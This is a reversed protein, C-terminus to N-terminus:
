FSANVGISFTRPIPLGNTQATAVDLGSWNTFTFLNNGSVYVRIRQGVGLKNLTQANLTYGLQVSQCRFYSADEVWRNSFRNNDAGPNGPRPIDTDTNSPTWYDLAEPWQNSGSRALFTQLEDNYYQVDGEGYFSAFFDFGKYGVSANIGYTYGPITKGLFVKDYENVVGDPGETYLQGEEEPNGRLDQFYYDGPYVLDASTNVDEVESQRQEVEQESQYMGGTKYGRLYFLSYGERVRGYNGGFPVGDKIKTVENHVVSLNTSVNYWIDGIEDRYGLQLDLGNNDVQGLNYPPDNLGASIPVDVTTLLDKTKKYFYEIRASLSNFLILDVGFNTTYTKEWSLSTNPMDNFGVGWYTNGMGLRRGGGVYGSGLSVTANENALGIYGYNRIEHNGLKGWGGFLKMDTLWNLGAMFPEDSIRWATSFGPFYDWRNEPAFKSSGDYRLTFDFYYKSAYNYDIRGVYGQVANEARYSEAGLYENNNTIGWYQEDDYHLGDYSASISHYGYKQHSGNLLLNVNHDGFSREYRVILEGMLNNNTSYSEGYSGESDDLGSSGFLDLPNKPAEDFMESDVDQFGINKNRYYDGSIRGRISLGEMPQVELFVKGLLRYLQNRNTNLALKAMTNDLNSYPRTADYNYGRGAFSTTAAYGEAGEMWFKGVQTEPSYYIPQWPSHRAAYELMGNLGGRGGSEQQTNEWTGQLNIGGKIFDSFQTQAKSSINYRELYNSVMPSEDETYGTSFSYNSKGTNGSLRLNYKQNVANKNLVADQWDVFPFDGMYVDSNPDLEDRLPENPNNNFITTQLDTYQDVNLVDYVEPYNSVGYKASFDINVTEDSEEGTKTEILVVGNSARVGYVAAAAADKLVSISEIDDPNIMTMINVPPRFGGSAAGSGYETIPIGDIIILPSAAGWTNVGRIRIENRSFPHGGGSRIRVGPVSGQLSLEPSTTPTMKELNEGTVSSVSGSIDKRKREGYGIAVVEELETVSPELEVNIENRGDVEVVKEQYGVFSFVLAVDPPVKVKYVGEMDTTTGMNTEECIINAGPLPRGTSADTVKGTVEITQQQPAKIADAEISKEQSVPFIVIDKNIVKYTLNTGKLLEPLVRHITEGKFDFSVRKQIRELDFNKYFFDFESQDQIRQIANQITINEAKLVLQKENAYSVDSKAALASNAFVGFIFVLLLLCKNPIAIKKKMIQLAKFNSSRTQIQTLRSNQVM